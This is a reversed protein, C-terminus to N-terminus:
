WKIDSEIKSLVSKIMLIDTSLAFENYKEFSAKNQFINILNM